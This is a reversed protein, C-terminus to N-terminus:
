LCVPWFAYDQCLSLSQGIDQWALVAAMIDVITWEAYAIYAASQM